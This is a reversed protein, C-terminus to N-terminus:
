LKGVRDRRRTVPKASRNPSARARLEARLQAWSEFREPALTGDDLASQVACGPEADHQCDSFRCGAALSDIDEFAQDVSGESAWLQLERMGPTDIVLGGSPLRMLERQSTTHRGKGDEKVAGTLSVNDGVLRNVLTSKGVGSSGLLAITKGPEFYASVTGLNEATLASVSLVQAPHALATVEAVQANLDHAVDSKNLVVVPTAGSQWSLTLYRELRRPNYDSDLGMVVFVIDINAAVVQPTVNDGAGNRIFGTRRPLVAHILGEGSEPIRAAVWDGVTPLERADKSRHVLSGGLRVWRPGFECHVRLQKRSGFIVRAPRLGQREFPHFAEDFHESWGLELRWDTM